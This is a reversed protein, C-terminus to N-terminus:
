AIEATQKSVERQQDQGANSYVDTNSETTTTTTTTTERDASKGPTSVQEYNREFEDKPIAYIDHLTQHRSSSKCVVVYDLPAATSEGWTKTFLAPDKTQFAM